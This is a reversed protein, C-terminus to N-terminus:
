VEHQKLANILNPIDSKPLSFIWNTERGKLGIIYINVIDFSKNNEDLRISSEIIFGISTVVKGRAFACCKKSFQLITDKIAMTTYIRNNREFGM